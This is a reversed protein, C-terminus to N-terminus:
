EYEFYNDDSLCRDVWKAICDGEDGASPVYKEDKYEEAFLYDFSSLDVTLEAKENYGGESELIWESGFLRVVPNCPKTIIGKEDFFYSRAENYVKLFSKSADM